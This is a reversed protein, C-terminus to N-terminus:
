FKEKLPEAFIKNLSKEFVEKEIGEIDYRNIIRVKKIEDIKLIQNIELKLTHAKIAFEEKKEVYVRYVSM